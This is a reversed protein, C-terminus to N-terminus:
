FNQAVFQLFILKKQQQKSKKSEPSKMGEMIMKSIELGIYNQLRM